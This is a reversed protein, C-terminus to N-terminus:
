YIFLICSYIQFKPLLKSNHSTGHLFSDFDPYAHRPQYQLLISQQYHTDMEEIVKWIWQM